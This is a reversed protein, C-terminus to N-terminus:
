GAHMSDVCVFGIKLKVCIRCSIQEPASISVCACDLPVYGLLALISVIANFMGRGWRNQVDNYMSWGAFGVSLRELAEPTM